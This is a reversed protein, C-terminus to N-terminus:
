PEVFLPSLIDNTTTPGPLGSALYTIHHIHLKELRPFRGSTIQLIGRVDVDNFTDDVIISPIVLSKLGPHQVAQLPIQDPAGVVATSFMQPKAYIKLHELQPHHIGLMTIFSDTPYWCSLSLSRLRNPIEALAK